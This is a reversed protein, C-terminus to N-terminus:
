HLAPALKAELARATDRVERLGPNIKLAFQFAARGSLEDDHRLCIQGFGCIAGFHRPEIGLTVLIDDLSALDEGNLFHLTARKNWTEAWEPHTDVLADLTTEDMALIDSSVSALGRRALAADFAEPAERIMRIDHM